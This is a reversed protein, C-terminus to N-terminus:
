GLSSSLKVLLSGHQWQSAMFFYFIWRKLIKRLECGRTFLSFIGLITPSRVCNWNIFFSFVACFSLTWPIM